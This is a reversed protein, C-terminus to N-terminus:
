AFDAAYYFRISVPGIWKPDALSRAALLAEALDPLVSPKINLGVATPLRNLRQSKSDGFAVGLGRPLEVEGPLREHSGAPMNGTSGGFAARRGDASWATIM